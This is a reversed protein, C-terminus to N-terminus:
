ITLLKEGSKLIETLAEGPRHLPAYIRLKAAEAPKM